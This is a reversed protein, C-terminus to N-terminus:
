EEDDPQTQLRPVGDEGLWFVLDGPEFPHGEEDILREPRESTM